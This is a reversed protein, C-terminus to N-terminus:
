AEEAPIPLAASHFASRFSPAHPSQNVPGCASHAQVEPRARPRRTFEVNPPIDADDSFSLRQTSYNHRERCHQELGTMSSGIISSRLRQYAGTRRRSMAPPCNREPSRRHETGRPQSRFIHRERDEGVQPDVVTVGDEGRHGVTETPVSHVMGTPFGSGDGFHAEASVLVAATRWKKHRTSTARQESQPIDGSRSFQAAENLLAPPGDTLPTKPGFHTAAEPAMFANKRITRDRILNAEGAHDHTDARARSCRTAAEHTNIKSRISALRLPRAERM